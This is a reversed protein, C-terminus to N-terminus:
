KSSNMSSFSAATNMYRNILLLSSSSPVCLFLYLLCSGYFKPVSDWFKQQLWGGPLGRHEMNTLTKHLCSSNSVWDGAGRGIQFSPLPTYLGTWPLLDGRPVMSSCFLYRHEHVWLLLSQTFGQWEPSPLIKLLGPLPCSYSNFKMYKWLISAKDVALKCLLFMVM